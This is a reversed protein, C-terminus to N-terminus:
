KRSLKGVQLQLVPMRIHQSAQWFDHASQMRFWHDPADTGFAQSLRISVNPTIGGRGNVNQSLTNRSIGIHAAFEGVTMPIAELVDKLAFGPHPPNFMSM